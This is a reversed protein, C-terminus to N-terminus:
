EDERVVQGVAIETVDDWTCPGIKAQLYDRAYEPVWITQYHASLLCALTTKGSSEAGIFAIRLLDKM